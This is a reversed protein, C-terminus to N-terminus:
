KRSGFLINVIDKDQKLILEKYLNDRYLIQKHLQILLEQAEERNLRNVQDEFVRHSLEQEISLSNELKDM